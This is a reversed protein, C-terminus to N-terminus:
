GGSKNKFIRKSPKGDVKYRVVFKSPRKSEGEYVAKIDVEVSKPPEEKLAKAWKNEMSKWAGKNLNGDMAAYNIQEGPGDFISAILHGGEDKDLGDKIGDLKGAKAQQYTNRDAKSLDLKGSVSNVRGLEDTAYTYNGVEYKTNPELKGNLVKNWGGKKGPDLKIVNDLKKVVPELAKDALKGPIAAIAVTAVGAATMGEDFM